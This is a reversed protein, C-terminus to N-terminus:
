ARFLPPENKGWYISGLNYHGHFNDEYSHYHFQFVHGTKPPRDLRVHFRLLDDGTKGNILHLIKEGRGTLSAETMRIDQWSYQDDTELVQSVVQKLEPLIEKKYATEIKDGIRQGFKKMGQRYAEDMIMIETLWHPELQIHEYQSPAGIVFPLLTYERDNTLYVNAKTDSWQMTKVSSGNEAEAKDLWHDVISLNISFFGILVMMLQKVYIMIM